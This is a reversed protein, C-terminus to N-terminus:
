RERSRASCSRLEELAMFIDLLAQKTLAVELLIDPESQRLVELDEKTSRRALTGTCRQYQQKLGHKHAQLLRTGTPPLSLLLKECTQKIIDVQYYDSIALLSDVNEVTVKDADWAWLGLLSYFAVFEEQELTAATPTDVNGVASESDDDDSDEDGDLAAKCKAIEKRMRKLPLLPKLVDQKRLAVELLIDPESQRLVELDEKTSRKALAGICRQYQQKLGHKHAQLLRTGTPPLLLLRSECKQKISEVQYYDSIGLLSDVNHETVVEASWAKPLLLDYFANFEDKGAVDVKIVSHQAEKMGSQLMRNFVPSALRLLHSSALMSNEPDDGFELRVDGVQELTAAAPIETGRDMLALM